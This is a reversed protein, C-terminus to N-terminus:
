PNVVGLGSPLGANPWSTEGTQGFETHPTDCVVAVRLDVLFGPLGTKRPRGETQARLIGVTETHADSTLASGPVTVFTPRGGSRLM